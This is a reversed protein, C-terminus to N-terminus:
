SSGTSFPFGAPYLGETRGVRHVEWLQLGASCQLGQVLNLALIKIMGEGGTGLLVLLPGCFLSQISPSLLHVCEWSFSSLAAFNPTEKPLKGKFPFELTVKNKSCTFVAWRWCTPGCYCNWLRWGAVRNLMIKFPLLFCCTMCPVLTM